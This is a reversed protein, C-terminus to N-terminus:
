YEKFFFLKHFDKNIVVVVVKIIFNCEQKFVM